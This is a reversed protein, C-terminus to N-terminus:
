NLTKSPMPKKLRNSPKIATEWLAYCVAINAPPAVIGDDDPRQMAKLFGQADPTFSGTPPLSKFNGGKRYENLAERM